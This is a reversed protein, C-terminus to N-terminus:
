MEFEVAAIPRSQDGYSGDSTSVGYARYVASSYAALNQSTIEVWKMPAASYSGAAKSGDAAIRYLRNNRTVFLVTHHWWNWGTSKKTSQCCVVFTPLNSRRDFLEKVDVVKPVGSRKIASGDPIIPFCVDGFGRWTGVGPVTRAEPGSELLEFLSPINGAHTFDQNRRM